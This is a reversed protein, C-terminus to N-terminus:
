GQLSATWAGALATSSEVGVQIDTQGVVAFSSVASSPGSTFGVSYTFTYTVPLTPTISFVNLADTSPTTDGIIYFMEEQASGGDAATAVSYLWITM